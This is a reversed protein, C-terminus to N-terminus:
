SCKVIVQRDNGGQHFCIFPLRCESKWSWAATVIREPDSISSLPTDKVVRSPKRRSQISRGDKTMTATDQQPVTLAKAETRRLEQTRRPPIVPPGLRRLANWRQRHAPVIKLLASSLLRQRALAAYRRVTPSRDAPWITRASRWSSVHNVVMRNTTQASSVPPSIM